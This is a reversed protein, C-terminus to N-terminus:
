PQELTPTCGHALGDSLIPLTQSANGLLRSAPPAERHTLAQHQQDKSGDHWKQGEAEAPLVEGVLGFEGFGSALLEQLRAAHTQRYLFDQIGPDRDQPRDGQRPTQPVAVQFAKAGLSFGDDGFM